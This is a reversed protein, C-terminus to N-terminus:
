RDTVGYVGFAHPVPVPDTDLKTREIHPEDPTFSGSTVILTAGGSLTWGRMGAIGAPNFFIASGDQCPAASGAGARGM